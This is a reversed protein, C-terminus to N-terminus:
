GDINYMDEKSNKLRSETIMIIDYKNASLKLENFKEHNLSRMNHLYINPLWATTLTKKIEMDKLNNSAVKGIKSRCRTSGNISLSGDIGENSHYRGLNNSPKRQTIITTIPQYTQELERVFCARKTGNSSKSHPRSISVITQIPYDFNSSVMNVVSDLSVLHLRTLIAM